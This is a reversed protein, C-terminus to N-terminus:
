PALYYLPASGGATELGSESVAARLAEDLTAGMAAHGRFVVVVRKLQPLPNQASRIYIPEVYVLENGIM